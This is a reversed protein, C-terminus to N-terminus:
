AKNIRRPQRSPPRGTTHTTPSPPGLDFQALILLCQSLMVTREAWVSLCLFLCFPVQSHIFETTNTHQSTLPPSHPVQYIFVSQSIQLLPFYTSHANHLPSFLRPSSLLHPRSYYNLTHDRVCPSNFQVKMSVSCQRRLSSGTM